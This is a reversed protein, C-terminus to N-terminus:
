GMGYERRLKENLTLTKSIAAAVASGDRGCWAKTLDSLAGIIALDEAGFAAPLIKDFNGASSADLLVLKAKGLLNTRMNWTQEVAKAWGGTSNVGVIGLDIITVPIAPSDKTAMTYLTVNNFTTTAPAFESIDTILDTWMDEADVSTTGDHAVYGGHGNTGIGVNWELTCQTLKHNGYLSVYDVVGFAPYRSNSAM